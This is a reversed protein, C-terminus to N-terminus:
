SNLAAALRNQGRSRQYKVTGLPTNMNESTQTDTDDRAFQFFLVAQQNNSIATELAKSLRAKDENLITQDAPDSSEPKTVAYFDATATDQMHSLVKQLSLKIALSVDQQSLGLMQEIERNNYRSGTEIGFALEFALSENTTLNQMADDLQCRRSVHTQNYTDLEHNRLDKFVANAECRLKEITGREQKKFEPKPLSLLKALNKIAAKKRWSVEPQSISLREAMETQELRPQGNLGYTWELVKKQKDRLTLIAASLQAYQTDNVEQDAGFVAAALDKLELPKRKAM